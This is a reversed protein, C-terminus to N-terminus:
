RHLVRRALTNGLLQACQVVVVIIAVTLLTVPWDFQQYGYTIAFDGLGGGGVYGAMASMDVVAVFVFTYGLVLPALAEPVLVSWVIRFRSAGMARAAEVVAPDVSVLNQEVIRGIFFTAMAVMPFLVSRTGITTGMVLLTLPGVATIFIIFPIPRVINVLVNLVGFVARHAYLGGPRTTHLAGGLLLGLLGALLMTWFVMYATQLVSLWLVPSLTEWDAKM